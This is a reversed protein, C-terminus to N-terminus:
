RGLTKSLKESVDQRFRDVFGLTYAIPDLQDDLVLPTLDMAFALHSAQDVAHPSFYTANARRRGETALDYRKGGAIQSDFVGNLAAALHPRASVDMAVKEEDLMWDLDRWAECGLVKAPRQEVPLSRLAILVERFVALHTEHKDAPGHTYIVSPRIETLLVLLDQSLRHDQPNKLEVTPYDLQVMVGYDGIQAATRQEQQRIARMEEGSYGAYPGTRASGSGNTCIIGGFSKGEAQFCEAIGHYAMFELDDQHAGIGLHTIKGAAAAFEGGKPLFVDAGSQNFTLNLHNV